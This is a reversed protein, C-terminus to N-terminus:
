GSWSAYIDNLCSNPILPGETAVKYLQSKFERGESWNDLLKVVSSSCLTVLFFMNCMIWVSYLSVCCLLYCSWRQRSYFFIFSYMLSTNWNGKKYGYMIIFQTTLFILCTKMWFIFYQDKLYFFLYILPHYLLM